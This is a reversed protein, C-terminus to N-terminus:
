QDAHHSSPELISLPHLDQTKSAIHNHTSKLFCCISPFYIFYLKQRFSLHKCHVNQSLEHRLIQHQPMEQKNKKRINEAHEHKLRKIKIKEKENVLTTKLQPNTEM